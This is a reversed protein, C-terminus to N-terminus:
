KSFLRDQISLPRRSELKEKQKEYMDQFKEKQRELSIKERLSDGIRRSDASETVSDDNSAGIVPVPEDRSVVAKTSDEEM